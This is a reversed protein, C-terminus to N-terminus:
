KSEEKRWIKIYTFLSDLLLQVAKSQQLLFAQM